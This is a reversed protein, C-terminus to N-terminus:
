CDIHVSGITGGVNRKGTKQGTEKKWGPQKWKEELRETGNRAVRDREQSVVVKLEDDHFKDFM